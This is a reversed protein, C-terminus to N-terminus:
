GAIDRQRFTAVALWAFGITYVLLAILCQALPVSSSNGRLYADFANLNYNFTFLVLTRWMGGTMALGNVLLDALLWPIALATGGGHSRTVVTALLGITAAIALRVWAVIFDTGLSGLQGPTIDMAPTLGLATHLAFLVGLQFAIPVIILVATAEVLAYSLKVMLIRGRRANRTLLTKWTDFAFENGVTATMFIVVLLSGLVAAIQLGILLPQPFAYTDLVDAVDSQRAADALAFIPPIAALLVLVVPIVPMLWTIRLHRLKIWEARLLGTMM